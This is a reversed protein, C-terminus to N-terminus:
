DQTSKHAHNLVVGRVPVHLYSLMGLSQNLRAATTRQANVVMLIDDCKSALIMAESTTLVAPSDIIVFANRTLQDLIEAMRSSSLLVPAAEIVPGSPLIMLNPESTPQLAGHVTDAMEGNVDRVQDTYLISELGIRNPVGFIKHIQPNRLNTDILVVKAGIRALGLAIQSAVLTKGDGNEPSTVLMARGSREPIQQHNDMESNLLVGFALFSEPLVFRSGPKSRGNLLDKGNSHADLSPTQTLIATPTDENQSTTSVLSSARQALATAPKVTVVVGRGSDYSNLWPLQKVTAPLEKLTIFTTLGSAKGVKEPSRLVDDSQEIIIIIGVIAILGILLGIVATIPAGLGVPKQPIQADQVLTAQISVLQYYDNVDQGYQQRLQNLSTTVQNILPTNPPSQSNLTKLQQEQSNIQSQLTAMESLLFKTYTDNVATGQFSNISLRAITSALRAARAPDTDTVQVIVYQSDLDNQVTVMTALQTESLSTDGTQQLAAQLIPQTQPITALAKAAQQAGLLSNQDMHNPTNVLITASAQYKKPLFHNVALGAAAGILAALVILWFWKRILELLQHLQM